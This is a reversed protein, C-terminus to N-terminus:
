KGRRDAKLAANNLADVVIARQRVWYAVTEAQQNLHRDAENIAEEYTEIMEQMMSMSILHDEPGPGYFVSLPPVGFVQALAIAEAVRLPRTGREIKALTTQHMEFGFNTLKEALEEQSWSRAKRWQRVQDGFRKEYSEFTERMAKMHRQREPEYEEALKQTHEELEKQRLKQLTEAHEQMESEDSM